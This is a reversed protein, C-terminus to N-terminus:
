KKIKEDFDTQVPPGFYKVALGSVPLAVVLAPKGGHVVGAACGVLRVNVLTPMLATVAENVVATASSYRTKFLVDVEKDALGAFPTVYLTPSTIPLAETTFRFLVVDNVAFPKLGLVM